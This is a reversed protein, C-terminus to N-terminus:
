PGSTVIVPGSYWTLSTPKIQLVVTIEGTQAPSLAENFIDDTTLYLGYKQNIAPILDFHSNASGRQVSIPGAEGIHIRNYHFTKTGYFGSETRSRIKVSTNKLPNPETALVPDEFIVDTLQVNLNEQNNIQELIVDKANYPDAM